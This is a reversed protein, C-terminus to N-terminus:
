FFVNNLMKKLYLHIEIKVNVRGGCCGCRKGNIKLNMKICEKRM